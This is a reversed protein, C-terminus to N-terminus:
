MWTIKNETGNIIRKINSKHTFIIFLDVVYVFIALQVNFTLALTAYIAVSIMAALSVYKSLYLIILFCTITILATPLSMALAFGFCTAVGKGGKFKIFCSFTHGLLAFPFLFLPNINFKNALFVALFGKSMDLIFSYIFYKKGCARGLNSGGLNGSGFNMLDVNKTKALLLAFPISGYLYLIMALIFFTILNNM